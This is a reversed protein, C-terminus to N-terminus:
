FMRRSLRYIMTELLPDQSFDDVDHVWECYAIDELATGDGAPDGAEVDTLNVAFLHVISTSSKTLRSMGLPYWKENDKCSYGSEEELERIACDLASEGEVDMGGTLSCPSLKKHTWCPVLEHRILSEEGEKTVRYPLVAVAQGNTWPSHTCIYSDVGHDPDNLEILEIWKTKFLTKRNM